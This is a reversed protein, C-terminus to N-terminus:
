EYGAGETRLASRAVKIARELVMSDRALDLGDAEAEAVRKLAGRLVTEREGQIRLAQLILRADEIHVLALTDDQEGAFNGFPTGIEAELREVADNLKDTTM